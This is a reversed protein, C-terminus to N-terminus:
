GRRLMRGGVAQMVIGFMTTVTGVLLERAPLGLFQPGPDCEEGRRLAYPGELAVDGPQRAGVEMFAEAVVFALVAGAALIVLYFLIRAM